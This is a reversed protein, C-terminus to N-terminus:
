HDDDAVASAWDYRECSLSDAETDAVESEPSILLSWPRLLSMTAVAVEEEEVVVVVDGGDMLLLVGLLLVVM